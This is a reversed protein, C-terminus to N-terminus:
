DVYKKNTPDYIFPEHFNGNQDQWTTYIMTEDKTGCPCINYVGPLGDESMEVMDDVTFVGDGNVDEM